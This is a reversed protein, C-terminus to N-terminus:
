TDTLESISEADGLKKALALRAWKKIRDSDAQITGKAAKLRETETEPLANEWNRNLECEAAYLRNVQEKLLASQYRLTDLRRKIPDSIVYGLALNVASTVLPIIGMVLTFATEAEPNAETEPLISGERFRECSWGYWANGMEFLVHCLVATFICHSTRCDDM